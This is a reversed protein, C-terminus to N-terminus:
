RTLHFREIADIFRLFFIKKFRGDFLINKQPRSQLSGTQNQTAEEVEKRRLTM